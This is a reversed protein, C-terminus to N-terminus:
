QGSLILLATLFMDEGAISHVLSCLWKVISSFDNWLQLLNKRSSSERLATKLMHLRSQITYAYFTVSINNKLNLYNMSMKPQYQTRNEGSHSTNEYLILFASHFTKYSYSVQDQLVSSRCLNLTEQLLIM